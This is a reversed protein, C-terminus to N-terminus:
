LLLYFNKQGLNLIANKELKDNPHYINAHKVFKELHGYGGGWGLYAWARWHWLWNGGRTRSIGAPVGQMTCVHISYMCYMTVCVVTTLILDNYCNICNFAVLLCNKYQMFTRYGLSDCLTGNSQRVTDKFHNFRLPQLCKKLSWQHHIEFASSLLELSSIM